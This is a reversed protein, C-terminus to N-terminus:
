VNYMIFQITCDATYLTNETHHIILSTCQVLRATKKLAALFSELQDLTGYLIVTVLQTQKSQQQKNNKQTHYGIIQMKLKQAESFIYACQDNCTPGICCQIEQQCLNKLVPIQQVLENYHREDSIKQALQQQLQCIIAQEQMIAADFWVYLGYRWLLLLITIMVLLMVYRYLPRIRMFRSLRHRPPVFFM